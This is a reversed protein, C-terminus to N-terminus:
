FLWGGILAGAVLGAAAVGILTYTAEPPMECPKPEGCYKLNRVWADFAEPQQAEAAILLDCHEIPEVLDEAGAEAWDEPYRCKYAGWSWCPLVQKLEALYDRQATQGVSGYYM